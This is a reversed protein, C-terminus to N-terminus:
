IIIYMSKRKKIRLIFLTKSTCPKREENEEDRKQNSQNCHHRRNTNTIPTVNSMTTYIEDQSMNKAPFNPSSNTQHVTHAVYTLFYLKYSNEKM